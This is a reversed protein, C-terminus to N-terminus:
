KEKIILNYTNQIYINPDNILWANFDKKIQIKDIEKKIRYYKEDIVAWEDIILSWPTKNLQIKIWDLTTFDHINAQLMMDRWQERLQTDYGEKNQISAKLRLIEKYEPLEKLKDEAESLLAKELSLERDNRRLEPILWAVKNQIDTTM